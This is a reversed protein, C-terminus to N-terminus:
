AHRTFQKDQHLALMLVQFHSAANSILSSPNNASLNRLADMSISFWALRAGIRVLVWEDSGGINKSFILM